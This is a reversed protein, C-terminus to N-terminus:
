LRPSCVLDRCSDLDCGILLSWYCNYANIIREQKEEVSNVEEEELSADRASESEQWRKDRAPLDWGERHM